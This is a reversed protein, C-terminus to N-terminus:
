SHRRQPLSARRAPHACYGEWSYRVGHTTSLGEGKFARRAEIWASLITWHLRLTMAAYSLREKPRGARVMQKLFIRLSQVLTLKNLFCHNKGQALFGGYCHRYAMKQVSRNDDKRMHHVVAKPTYVLRRGTCRMRFGLDMDEGSFRFLPDFGGIAALASRRYSACLGFLFPVNLRMHPGWHQFFIEARLRDADSRRYREVARGGVGDISADDYCRGLELIFRPSPITDADLYAIIDGHANQWATNRAAAIGLNHEHRIVRVGGMADIVTKSRDISGDDVVLIELPSQVQKFLGQLANGIFAQANYCAIAVSITPQSGM